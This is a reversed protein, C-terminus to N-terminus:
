PLKMRLDDITSVGLKVMGSTFEEKTYVGMTKAGMYYSILLSVTDTAPNIGLDQYFQSLGEVEIKDTASDRYKSFITEINKSSPKAVEARGGYGRDFYELAAANM